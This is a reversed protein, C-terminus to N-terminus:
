ENEKVNLEGTFDWQANNGSTRFGPTQVSKFMPQGKSNITNKLATNFDYLKNVQDTPIDGQLTLKRGEVFDFGRLTASEPLLEATTKWCELAAFKLEERDRLIEYRAKLQIANTYDQSLSAVKDEVSNTRFSLVQLAGFYILVGVMYVGLVAGLGRMWLRDVFQQQYRISYEQPLLNSKSDAQAARRATSSALETLNQPASIEVPQNLGTQLAAQWEHAVNEEAVLHWKPQTKLWGELEGAWAMQTLQERLSEARQGGPAAQILGLSQLTGGFWWAVLANNPNSADPYIWAGDSETRTTQLQDLLPVELRDALFGEKELGVLFEEVLNRAVITVIVTQLQEVQMEVTGAENQVPTTTQKTSTEPLVFLSWAIQGVPLPSVKELQLEVMSVTESFDAKPLQLVRLFVKEPPLWAVNLKKQWLTRWTKAVLHLPLPQGGPITQERDLKFDGNRSDFQWLRSSNSGVQLVNASHWRAM